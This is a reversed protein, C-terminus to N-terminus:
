YEDSNESHPHPTPLGVPVHEDVPTQVQLAPKASVLHVTQTVPFYM